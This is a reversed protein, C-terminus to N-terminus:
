SKPPDVAFVLTREFRITRSKFRLELAYIGVAASEPLRIFADIVWRGPKLDYNAQTDVVLPTGRHLIRTDLSGTVVGTTHEPCLVYVLRHGFEEGPKLRRPYLELREIKFYPLEKSDCSYEDWVKEPFSKLREGPSRFPRGLYNLTPACSLILLGCAAVGLLRARVKQAGM